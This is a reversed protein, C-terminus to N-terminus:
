SSYRMKLFSNLIQVYFLPRQQALGVEVVTVALETLLQTLAVMTALLLETTVATTLELIVPHEILDAIIILCDLQKTAEIVRVQNIIPLKPTLQCKLLPSTSM